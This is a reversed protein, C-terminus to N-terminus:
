KDVCKKKEIEGHESCSMPTTGLGSMKKNVAWGREQMTRGKWTEFPQKEGEGLASGECKKRILFFTCQRTHASQTNQHSIDMLMSM